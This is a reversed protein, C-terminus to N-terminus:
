VRAHSGVHASGRVVELEEDLAPNRVAEALDQAAELAGEDGLRARHLLARAQLERMGTRAALPELQDVWGRAAGPRHRVAVACLADLAHAEIWLYSDPLRRSISPAEVLLDYGQDIRGRAVAVLGLGRTAISM